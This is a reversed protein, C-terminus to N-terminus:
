VGDWQELPLPFFMVAYIMGENWQAGKTSVSSCSPVLCDVASGRSSNQGLLGNRHFSVQSCLSVSKWLQSIGYSSFNQLIGKKFVGVKSVLECEMPNKAHTQTPRSCSKLKASPRIGRTLQESKVAVNIITNFLLLAIQFRPPRM